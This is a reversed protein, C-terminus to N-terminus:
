NGNLMDDLNQLEDLLDDLTDNDSTDETGVDEENGVVQESVDGKEKSMNKKSSTFYLVTSATIIILIIIGIVLLRNISNGKNM